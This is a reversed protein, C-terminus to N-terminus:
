GAGWGPPPAAPSASRSHPWAPPAPSAAAPYRPCTAMTGSETATPMAAPHEGSRRLDAGAGCPCGPHATWRRGVIAPRSLDVEITHDVTAPREADRSAGAWHRYRDAEAVATGATALVTAPDGHGPRRHQQRLLQPWAPDRDTRHLDACRLCSTRGPLVLPGVVGVGDRLHVALHPVRHTHLDTLVQRHGTVQDILVVLGDAWREVAPRDPRHNRELVAGHGTLAGAIQDALVGTGLLLIRRAGPGPRDAPRAVLLRARDLAAVVHAVPPEPVALQTCLRSVTVTGDLRSLVRHLDASDLPAPPRILVAREPDIGLQVHGDPRAVVIRTPDLLPHPPTM